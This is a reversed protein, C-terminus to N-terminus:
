NAKFTGSQLSKILEHVVVTSLHQLWIEIEDMNSANCIVGRKAENAAMRSHSVFNNFEFKSTSNDLKVNDKVLEKVTVLMQKRMLESYKSDNSFTKAGPALDARTEKKEILKILETKTLNNLNKM